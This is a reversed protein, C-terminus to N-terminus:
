TLPPEVKHYADWVHQVDAMVQADLTPEAILTGSVDTAAFYNKFSIDDKNYRSSKLVRDFYLIPNLKTAEGARFTDRPSDVSVVPKFVFLLGAAVALFRTANGAIETGTLAPYPEPCAESIQNERIEQRNRLSNRHSALVVSVVVTCIDDEREETVKCFAQILDDHSDKLVWMIRSTESQMGVADKPGEEM